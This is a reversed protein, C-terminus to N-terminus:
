QLTLQDSLNVYHTLSVEIQSNIPNPYYLVTGQAYWPQPGPYSTAVDSVVNGFLDYTLTAAGYFVIGHSGRGGTSCYTSAYATFSVYNGDVSWTVSAPVVHTGNFGCSHGTLQYVTPLSLDAANADTYIFAFATIALISLGLVLKKM